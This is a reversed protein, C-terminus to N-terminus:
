PHHYTKDYQWHNRYMHTRYSLFVNVLDCSAHPTRSLTQGNCAAPWQRGRESCAREINYTCTLISLKHLGYNSERSRKTNQHSRLSQDSSDTAMVNASHLKDVKRRMGYRDSNYVRTESGLLEKERARDALYRRVQDRDEEAQLAPILHIRAWMKERALESCDTLVTEKQVLRVCEAATGYCM